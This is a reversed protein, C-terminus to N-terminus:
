TPLTILALLSSLCDTCSPCQSAKVSAFWVNVTQASVAYVNSYTAATETWRSRDGCSKWPIQTTRDDGDRSM